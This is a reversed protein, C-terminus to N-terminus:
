PAGEVAEAIAAMGFDLVSVAAEATAAVPEPAKERLAMLLGAAVALAVVSGDGDREARRVVEPDIHATVEVVGGEVDVPRVTFVRVGDTGNRGGNGASM